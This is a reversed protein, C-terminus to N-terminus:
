ASRLPHRQLPVRPFFTQMWDTCDETARDKLLQQCATQCGQVERPTKCTEPLLNYVAVLGLISRTIIGGGIEERPDKLLGPAQWCFNDKFHRPGKGLVARHIVALMAMDRRATLPALNFEILTTIDDM